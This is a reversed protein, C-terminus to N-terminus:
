FREHLRKRGRKIGRRKQAERWRSEIEKAVKDESHRLHRGDTMLMANRMVEFCEKRRETDRQEFQQEQQAKAAAAIKLIEDFDPM